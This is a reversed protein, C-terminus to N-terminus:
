ASDRLLELHEDVLCKIVQLTQNESKASWWLKEARAARETVLASNAEVLHTEFAAGDAQTAFAVAMDATGNDLDPVIILAYSNSLFKDLEKNELVADSMRIDLRTESAIKLVEKYRAIKRALVERAVELKVGSSSKIQTAAAEFEERVKRESCLARVEMKGDRVRQYLNDRRAIMMKIIDDLDENHGKSQLETRCDVNIYDTTALANTLGPTIFSVLTASEEATLQKKLYQAREPTRFAARYEKGSSRTSNLDPRTRAAVNSIFEWVQTHEMDDTQYWIPEVGLRAFNRERLKKDKKSEPEVLLIFHPGPAGASQNESRSSRM